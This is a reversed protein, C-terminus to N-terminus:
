ECGGGGHNEDISLLDCGGGGSGETSDKCSFKDGRYYITTGSLRASGWTPTASVCQQDGNSGPGAFLNYEFHSTTYTVGSAVGKVEIDLMNASLSGGDPCEYENDGGWTCLHEIMWRERSEFLAPLLQMAEAAKSRDMAKRYQPVAISTLIGIMMVVVLLEILTFGRQRM